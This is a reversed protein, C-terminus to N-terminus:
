TSSTLVKIEEFFVVLLSWPSFRLAILDLILPEYYATLLDASDVRPSM